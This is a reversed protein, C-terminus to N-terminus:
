LSCAASALHPSVKNACSQCLSLIGFQLAYRLVKNLAKDVLPRLHHQTRLPSALMAPWARAQLSSPTAPCQFSSSPSTGPRCASPGGLDGRSPTVEDHSRAVRDVEPLGEFPVLLQLSGTLFSIM